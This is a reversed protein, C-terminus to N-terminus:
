KNSLPFNRALRFVNDTMVLLYRYGGKRPLKSFDVQWQQGPYNGRSINGLKIINAVNPNNRLCVKCQRTVEKIVTYLNQGILKQNLSKYLTDAGWHTKHETLATTWILNSPVVTRGDALYAWKNLKIKGNMDQILKLDEKSYNPEQDTSTTQIKCDPILSLEEKGVEEAVRRAEHDALRTGIEM